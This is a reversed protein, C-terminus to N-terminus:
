NGGTAVPQKIVAQGKLTCVYEESNQFHWVRLQTDDTLPRVVGGQEVLTADSLDCRYLGTNPNLPGHSVEIETGHDIGWNTGGGGCGILTFPLIALLTLLRSNKRIYTKM